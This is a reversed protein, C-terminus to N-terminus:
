EPDQSPVTLFFRKHALGKKAERTSKSGIVPVRSSDKVISSVIFEVWKRNRSVIFEVM